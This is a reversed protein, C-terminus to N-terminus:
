GSAYAYGRVRGNEEWVLWPRGASIRQAMEETTVEEEEFTIITNVVYHNYIATIAAADATTASRIM